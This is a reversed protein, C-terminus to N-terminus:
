TVRVDIGFLMPLASYWRQTECPKVYSDTVVLPFCGGWPVCTNATAGHPDRRPGQDFMLDSSSFSIPLGYLSRPEWTAEREPHLGKPVLAESSSSHEYNQTTFESIKVTIILFVHTSRPSLSVLNRYLSVSFLAPSPKANVDSMVPDMIDNKLEKSNLLQAIVHTENMSKSSCKHKQRM